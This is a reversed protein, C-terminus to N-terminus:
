SVEPLKPKAALMGTAIDAFDGGRSVPGTLSYLHEIMDAAETLLRAATQTNECNLKSQNMHDRDGDTLMIAEASIRLREVIDTM